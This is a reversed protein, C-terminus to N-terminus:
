RLEQSHVPSKGTTQSAQPYGGPDWRNHAETGLFTPAHTSQLPAGHEPRPGQGASLDEPVEGKPWQWFSSSNRHKLIHSHCSCLLKTKEEPHPGHTVASPDWLLDKTIWETLARWPFSFHPSQGSGGHAVPFSKWALGVPINVAVGLGRHSGLAMPPPAALSPGCPLVTTDPLAPLTNPGETMQLLPWAPSPCCAAKLPFCEQRPVLKLATCDTSWAARIYHAM